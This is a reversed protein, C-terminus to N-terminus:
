QQPCTPKTIRPSRVHITRPLVQVQDPPMQLMYGRQHITVIPVGLKRLQSIITALNAPEVVDTGWVARYLSEQTIVTQPNLAFATILREQHITLQYANGFIILQHFQGPQVQIASGTSSTTPSPTPTPPKSTPSENTPQTM